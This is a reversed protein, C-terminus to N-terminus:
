DNWSIGFMQLLLWRPRTSILVTAMKKKETGTQVCCAYKTPTNKTNDPVGQKMFINQERGYINVKKHSIAVMSKFSTWAINSSPREVEIFLSKKETTNTITLRNLKKCWKIQKNAQKESQQFVSFCAEWPTHFVSSIHHHCHFPPHEMGSLTNLNLRKKEKKNDGQRIQYKEEKRKM